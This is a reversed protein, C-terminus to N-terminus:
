NWELRYFYGVHHVKQHIERPALGVLGDFRHHIAYLSLDVKNSWKEIAKKRDAKRDKMSRFHKLNLAKMTEDTIRDMLLGNQINLDASSNIEYRTMM